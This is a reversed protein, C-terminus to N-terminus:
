AEYAEQLIKSLIVRSEAVPVPRPALELKMKNEAASRATLDLLEPTIDPFEKLSRPVGISKLFAKYSAVVEQPTSGPFLPALEMTRAAVAPNGLYYNWCAPLLLVTAIGHQIRGFWSFSCLHPLGTSKFRIVMGGLTAARALEKRGSGDRMARPLNEVILRIGEMAWANGNAQVNDMGTNLFGEILHSLADCGTALTVSPPMSATFKPIVVAMEPVALEECILKKVQKERDVINAFPTSESGTGATTPVAIIRRLKATPNAKSYTNLGFHRDLEWGSEVLLLTAKAADLVSGGGIAVVKAFPAKRLFERMKMITPIAPEPEIESFRDVTCGVSKAAAEFPALAGCREAGTAGTFLVVRGTAGKLLSAFTEQPDGDFIVRQKPSEQLFDTM